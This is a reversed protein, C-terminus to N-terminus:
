KENIHKQIFYDGILISETHNLNIKKLCECDYLELVKKKKLHQFGRVGLKKKMGWLGQFRMWNQINIKTYDIGLSLFFGQLMGFHELLKNIKSMNKGIFLDEIAVNKITYTNNLYNIIRYIDEPNKNLPVIDIYCDGSFVAISGGVSLKSEKMVSPDVALIIEEVDYNLKLKKM